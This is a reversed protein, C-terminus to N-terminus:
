RALRLRVADILRTFLGGEAVDHLAVLPYSAVVEGDMSVELTGMVQGESVPASVPQQIQANVTVRDRAGRPVTAAVDQTVGVALEANEGGYARVTQLAQGSTYLAVTEFFRFGYNLLAMSDQTRQNESPAGLIVSILRRGDREASAALCYGAARTHGTKVGDVTSDRWLLRNRNFQRINNYTFEKEAYMAYKEPFDRVLAQVMIAIDRASSYHGEEPMGSANLFNSNRMGLRQAEANMLGAFGAKSGALHEAIAVSADNGSQVIIGRLLDELSVRRGVEIFMRSQSSDIGQRWAAESILVEDEMRAHGKAIEDFAVYSTMVKTISAPDRREDANRKALIQGTQADMLVYAEANVPPADPVVQAVASAAVFWLAVACLLRNM